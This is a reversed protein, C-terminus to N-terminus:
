VAVMVDHFPAYKVLEECSCGTEGRGRGGDQARGGGHGDVGRGM